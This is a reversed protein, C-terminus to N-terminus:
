AGLHPTSHALEFGSQPTATGDLRAPLAWQARDFSVGGAVQWLGAALPTKSWPLLLKTVKRIGM